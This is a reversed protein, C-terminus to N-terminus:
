KFFFDALAVLLTLVMVWLALHHWFTSSVKTAHRQTTSKRLPQEPVVVPDLGTERSGTLPVFPAATTENTAARQEYPPVYHPATTYLGNGLDIRRAGTVEDESFAAIAPQM